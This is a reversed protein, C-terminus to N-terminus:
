KGGEKGGEKRETTLESDNMKMVKSLSKRVM